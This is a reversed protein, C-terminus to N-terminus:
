PRGVRTTLFPYGHVVHRPDNDLGTGISALTIDSRPGPRSFLGSLVILGDIEPRATGHPEAVHNLM